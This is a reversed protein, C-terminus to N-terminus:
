DTPYKLVCEGASSGLSHASVTPLLLGPTCPLDIAKCSAVAAVCRPRTHPAPQRLARQAPVAHLVSKSSLSEFIAKCDARLFHSGASFQNNSNSM